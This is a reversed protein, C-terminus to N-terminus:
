WWGGEARFLRSESGACDCGLSNELCLGSCLGEESTECEGDIGIEEGGALDGRSLDVTRALVSLICM